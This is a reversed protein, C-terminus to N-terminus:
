CDFDRLTSIKSVFILYFHTHTHEQLVDRLYHLPVDGYVKHSAVQHSPCEPHIGPDPTMTSTGQLMINNISYIVLTSYILIGDVAILEPCMVHKPRYRLVLFSSFTTVGFSIETDTDPSTGKLPFKYTM